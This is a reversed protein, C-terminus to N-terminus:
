KHDEPTTIRIETAKGDVSIGDKVTKKLELKLHVVTYAKLDQFEAAKGNVTIKAASTDLVYRTKDPIQSVLILKSTDSVSLLRYAGPEVALLPGFATLLILALAATKKTPAILM